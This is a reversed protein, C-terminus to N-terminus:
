NSKTLVYRAEATQQAKQALGSIVAKQEDTAEPIPITEMYQVRLEYYGGRVFPAISKLYFWIAKSQLLGLLFWDANPIIYTKDNSYYKKDDYSFTPKASFHGYTIKPKEFEEYYGIM